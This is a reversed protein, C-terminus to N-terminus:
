PPTSTVRDKVCRFGVHSLGSDPSCGQRASPRYRLCYSAHCLFSGGRQVREPVNGNHPTYSRPPGKPDVTLLDARRSYLEIDYWDGCWEWVNGATDYLGYGNPAFSKVPATRVFGDAATNKTPFVGQWINARPDADTPPDNGWTFDTQSLGGRAAFEWEAETPLRKDAWKGYAVADDWSVHVVPHSERGDLNSGPGEPHRWNAGPTWKWWQRFDRLDAVDTEESPPTFVVSGAVLKDTPPPESGAPLYALIEEVTPTREATTVYGTAEVFRAFDANTVETEDMWFGSVRVRHPPREDQWALPTDSGMTFEGGPIWVMGPPPEGPAADVHPITRTEFAAPAAAPSFDSGDAAANATAKAQSRVRLAVPTSASIAFLVLLLAAAAGFAVTWRGSSLSM